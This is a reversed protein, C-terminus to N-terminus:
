LSYMNRQRGRVCMYCSKSSFFPIYISVNHAFISYMVFVCVCVCLWVTRVIYLSGSKKKYINLAVGSQFRTPTPRSRRFLEWSVFTHYPHRPENTQEDYLIGCMPFLFVFLFLVKKPPSLPHHPLTTICLFTVRV